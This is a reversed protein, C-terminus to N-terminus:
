RTVMPLSYFTVMDVSSMVESTFLPLSEGAADSVSLIIMCPFTRLTKRNLSLTFVNLTIYLLVDGLTFRKIYRQIFCLGDVYHLAICGVMVQRLLACINVKQLCTVITFLFLKFPFM